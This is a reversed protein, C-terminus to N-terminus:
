TSLRCPAPKLTSCGSRRRRRRSRSRRGRPRPLLLRRRRARPAGPQTMTGPGHERVTRVSKRALWASRRGLEYSNEQYEGAAAARGLRACDGSGRNASGRQGGGLRRRGRLRPQADPQRLEVRVQEGVAGRRGANAGQRSLTSASCGRQNRSTTCHSVASGVGVRPRREVVRLVAAHAPQRWARREAAHPRQQLRDRGLLARVRAPPVQHDDQGVRRAPGRGPRVAALARVRCGRARATSVSASGPRGAVDDARQQGFGPAVARADARQARPVLGVVRREDARLPRAAIRVRRQQTGRDIRRESTGRVRLGRARRDLEDEALQGALDGRARDDTRDALEHARKGVVDGARAVDPALVHVRVEAAIRAERARDPLELARERCPRARAVLRDPDGLGADARGTCAAGARGIWAAPRPSGRM